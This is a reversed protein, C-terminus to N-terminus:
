HGFVISTVEFLVLSLEDVSKFIRTCESPQSNKLKKACQFLGEGSVFNNDVPSPDDNARLPTPFRLSASTFSSNTTPLMNDTEPPPHVPIALSHALSPVTPM